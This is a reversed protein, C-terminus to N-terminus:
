PFACNGSAIANGLRRAAERRGPRDILGFLAQKMTRSLVLPVRLFRTIGALYSTAVGPVGSARKAM